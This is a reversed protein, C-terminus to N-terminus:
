THLIDAATGTDNWGAQRWSGVMITMSNLERFSYAEIFEKM